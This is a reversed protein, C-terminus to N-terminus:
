RGRGRGRPRAQDGAFPGAINDMEAQRLLKDERGKRREKLIASEKALENAVREELEPSILAHGRNREGLFLTREDMWPAADAGADAQKLTASYVEEWMQYRRAIGEMCLLEGCQLQDYTMAQELIESLFKHEDVGVDSASLQM